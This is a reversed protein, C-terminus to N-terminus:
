SSEGTVPQPIDITFAGPDADAEGPDIGDDDAFDSEGDYEDHYEMECIVPDGADFPRLTVTGHGGENNIWDGDPLGYVLDLLRDALTVASGGAIGITVKPLAHNGCMERGDRYRVAEIEAAGQDGGGSICCVAEEIGLAELVKLCFALDTM